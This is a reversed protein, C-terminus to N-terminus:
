AARDVMTRVLGALEQPTEGKSRLLVAFAALQAPTANGAMIEDMAWATDDATLDAGGLLATLVAPWDRGAPAAMASASSRSAATGAGSRSPSSRRARSLTSRRTSSRM